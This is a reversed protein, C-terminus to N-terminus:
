GQHSFKKPMSEMLEKNEDDIVKVDGTKEGKVIDRITVLPLPEQTSDFRLLRKRGDNSDTRVKIDPIKLLGVRIKHENGGEADIKLVRFLDPLSLEEKSESLHNYCKEINNMVKNGFGTNYQKYSKKFKMSPSLDSLLEQIENFKDGVKSTLSEITVKIEDYRDAKFKLEKMQKDLEKFNIDTM